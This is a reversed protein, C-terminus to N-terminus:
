GATNNTCVQTRKTAEQTASNLTYIDWVGSTASEKITWIDWDAKAPNSGIILSTGLVSLALLKKM